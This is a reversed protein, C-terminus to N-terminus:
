VGAVRLHERSWKDESLYTEAAILDKGDNQAYRLVGLTAIMGRLGIRELRFRLRRQKEVLGRITM